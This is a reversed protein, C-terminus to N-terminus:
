NEAEESFQQKWFMEKLFTNRKSGETAIAKKYAKGEGLLILKEKARTIATYILNRQLMKYAQFTVPIIAIPFESGQSKHISIAYSLTINKWNSREYKIEKGSFNMWIEDQGSESDKSPILDTIFGVDGNSVGNALDNVLHLVRDRERYIAGAYEFQLEEGKRPNLHEQMISNLNHIGAEGKYMPCLIQIDSAPIGKNLAANIIKPVMLAIDSGGAEFYSYDDKKMRWDAPLKGDKIYNALKVITSESGQRFVTQLKIKPIENLQLLDGLVQGPGVSALQDQDGVLIVQTRSDVSEFLKKALWTDVMSFEDIVLLDAELSEDLPDDLEDEDSSFLGLLAHITTAPLDTSEKMRRAAKGTPAALSIIEKDSYLNFKRVKAYTKLIGKIVTTKGTGPGGTLVFFKSTIAEKIAQRQIADYPFGNEKEVEDIYFDIDASEDIFGEGDMIRHINKTISEESYYLVNSFVKDDAIQLENDSWLEELRVMIQGEHIKKSEKPRAEKLLACTKEVLLKKPVYTDGTEQSHENLVHLLAAKYREPSDATIGLKEALEDASKFGFGKITRALLYPNNEVVDITMDEFEKIIKSSTNLPIGYEALKAISIQNKFDDKLRLVFANKDSTKLGSVKDLKSPDEIIKKVTDEEGYLEVIKLAKKKGIGKFQKSSFYDILGSLSSIKKEYYTVKLQEGYKPHNVLEGKFLYEEEEKVDIMNGSVIIYHSSYDSDTEDIDVGLIYFMTQENKFIIKDVQGKFYVEKM